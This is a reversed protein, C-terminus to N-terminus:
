WHGWFDLMIVKGQYDSLRFEVGEVDAGVIEPILDGTKLGVNGPAGPFAATLTEAAAAGDGAASDGRGRKSRQGPRRSAIAPPAADKPAVTEGDPQKPRAPPRKDNKVDSTAPGPPVAPPSNRPPPVAGARGSNAPGSSQSITTAEDSPGGCSSLLVILMSVPLLRKM